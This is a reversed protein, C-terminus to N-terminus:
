CGTVVKKVTKDCLVSEPACSASASPAVQLGTSRGVPLVSMSTDYTTLWYSKQVSILRCLEEPLRQHRKGLRFAVLKVATQLAAFPLLLPNCRALFRILSKVYAGAERDPMGVM